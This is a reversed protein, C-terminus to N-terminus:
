DDLAVYVASYRERQGCRELTLPSAAATLSTVCQIVHVDSSCSERESEILNHATMCFLASSLGPPVVAAGCNDQADGSLLLLLPTCGVPQSGSSSADIM